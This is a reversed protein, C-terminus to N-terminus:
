WSYLLGVGCWPCVIVTNYCLSVFWFGKDIDIYIAITSAFMTGSGKKSNNSNKLVFFITDRWAMMILINSSIVPTFLSCITM